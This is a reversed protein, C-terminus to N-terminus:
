ARTDRRPGVSEDTRSVLATTQIPASAYSVLGLLLFLLAALARSCLVAQPCVRWCEDNNIVLESGALGCGGSHQLV